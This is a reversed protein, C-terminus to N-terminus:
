RKYNGGGPLLIETDMSERIMQAKSKRSTFSRVVLFLIYIASLFLIFTFIRIFIGYVTNLNGALATNLSATETLISAIRLDIVMMGLAMLIFFISWVRNERMVAGLIVFMATIGILIIGVGVGFNGEDRKYGVANVEFDYAFITDEGDVNGVGNVIYSGVATANCITYNYVRGIKTAEVEGMLETSNPYLVSTFNIYTCNACTQKLDICDSTRFTGLSQIEAGVLPLIILILFIILFLSKKMINKIIVNSTYLYEKAKTM